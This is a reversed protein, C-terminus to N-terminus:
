LFKYLMLSSTTTSVTSVRCTFTDICCWSHGGFPADEAALAAPGTSEKETTWVGRNGLM